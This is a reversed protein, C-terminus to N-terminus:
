DNFLGNLKDKAKDLLEDKKEDLKEKAIRKAEEEVKKKAESKAQAIINDLMSEVIAAGVQDAPIGNPKGISGSTFTPLTIEYAKTDIKVDGTSLNEFNLKLSVESVTVNEVIVLPNVNKGTEPQPENETKPLNKMLNEKLALLNGKGSADLEYLVSPAVISVNNVVYPESLEGGLDLVVQNLAFANQPSFGTPNKVNMGAMSLKGESLVLEVSSVSVQTDLFQSGQKEIQTRILEGAGSFLYVVGLGVVVLILLLGILGKKM